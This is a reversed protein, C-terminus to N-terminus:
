NGRHPRISHLEASLVALWYRLPQDATLHRSIRRALWWAPVLAAPVALWIPAASLLNGPGFILGALILAVLAGLARGTWGPLLRMVALAAAACDVGTPVVRWLVLSVVGVLICFAGWFYFTDAQGGFSYAHDGKGVGPIVALQRRVRDDPYEFPM